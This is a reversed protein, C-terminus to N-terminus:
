RGLFQHRRREPFQHHRQQQDVSPRHQVRDLCQRHRSHRHRQRPHQRRDDFQHHHQEFHQRQQDNRQRGSYGRRQLIREDAHQRHDDTHRLHQQRDPYRIRQVRYEFELLANGSNNITSNTLTFNTVGVGNVGSGGTSQVNMQDFSADKTSTLSIGDGTTSQITGGTSNNTSGADGTVTLHGTTGTTNLVIGNVAGNANIDQFTVNGSGITTNSINLATGTTSTLHNTGTVTVTGSSSASFAGTTGTSLTMGGDFSFTGANSSLAISKGTIAGNFDYTGAGTMNQISVNGTGTSNSVAGDVTFTLNGGNLAVETGSAGSMTGAHAHFTGTSNTLSIGSTGAGTTLTTFDMNLVNSSGGISVGGGASNNITGNTVDNVHVTGVSSGSISFAGAATTGFNVGQINNGTALVVSGNILANTGGAGDLTTTGAGGDSVVLGNSRSILQQGAELTIGSAYTGNELYIIDNAGDVDGTTAGNNGVGNLLALSAFPKESSGDGTSDSGTASNVYWIHPGNFNITATKTVTGPGSVGANSDTVTFNFSDSAASDGTLPHFVFDGDAQITVSGGHATAFTGPTFTLANPGDVDAAGSLSLLSATIGKFPGTTTPAGDTPDNVVLDTNYNASSAATFSVNNATPADNVGNVTLHLTALSTDGPQDGHLTYPVDIHVTEGDHLKQFDSGLNVVIQNSGNVSVSVDAEDIGDGAPAGSVVLPHTGADYTVNNPALHDPDLTDAGAGTLVTFATGSQDETMSATDDVAVPVDNVGNVTVVLNATSTDGADGTLTYHVTVTAHESGTLQQFHANNLNVQVQQM